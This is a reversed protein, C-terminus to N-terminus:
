ACVVLKRIEDGVKAVSVAYRKDFNDCYKDNMSGIQQHAHQACGGSCILAFRCSQCKAMGELQRGKWQDDRGNLVVPRERYSGVLSRAAGIDEWCKYLGGDPAFIYMGANAACYSGSFRFEERKRIASVIRGAVGANFCDLSVNTKPAQALVIDLLERDSRLTKRGNAKDYIINANLDFNPNQLFGRSGFLEHLPRLDHFNARSFNFRVVVRVGPRERLVLDINDVIRDFTGGGNTLFRQKDHIARTGDVSINLSHIADVGIVDMFRDVDYGNTVASFRFGRSSGLEVAREIVPLNSVWLPEGGFLTINRSWQKTESQEILDDIGAFVADVGDRSMSVKDGHGMFCAGSDASPRDSTARDIQSLPNPRRDIDNQLEREFCYSCRFNCDFTPAIVFHLQRRRAQLSRSIEVVAEREELPTLSTIFGRLWLADFEDQYRQRILDLSGRETLSEFLDQSVLVMGGTYGHLGFVAGDVPTWICYKSVRLDPCPM